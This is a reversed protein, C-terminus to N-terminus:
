KKIYLDKIIETIKNMYHYSNCHSAHGQYSNITKYFKQLYFKNQNKLKFWVKINKNLKKKFRKRLLIHTEYIRYGCIDIGFHNPFYRSKSNLTLNLNTNLFKEIISYMRKAENKDKLLLIFDDMYRIYYKVRLVEKIYHDLENLYINAYYQSTYNGIPIGVKENDNLIKKSFELLKKDKIKRELISLLISKDISYFFKKVDCKLIYYKGYKQKMLRMMQQIKLVARHTGKNDLCAYTDSIFRKCFYPKIFEEVYWQHVVRDRYPLSRIIREKPEYVKFERYNGFQYTGDKIENMMKIINTELDIEFIIVEKKHKKGASARFHAELLKEFTLSSTFKNKITKSM